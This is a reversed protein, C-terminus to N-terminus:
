VANGPLIITIAKFRRWSVATFELFEFVSSIVNFKGHGQYILTIPEPVIAGPQLQATADDESL